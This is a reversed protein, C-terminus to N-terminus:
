TSLKLRPWDQSPSVATFMSNWVCKTTKRMTPGQFLSYEASKTMEAFTAATLPLLSQSPDTQLAYNPLQVEDPLPPSSCQDDCCLRPQAKWSSTLEQRRREQYKNSLSNRTIHCDLPTESSHVSVQANELMSETIYSLFIQATCLCVSLM